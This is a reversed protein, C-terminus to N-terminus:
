ASPDDIDSDDYEEMIEQVPVGQSGGILMSAVAPDLIGKPKPPKRLNSIVPDTQVLMGRFLDTM